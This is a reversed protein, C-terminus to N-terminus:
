QPFSRPRTLTLHLSALIPLGPFGLAHIVNYFFV